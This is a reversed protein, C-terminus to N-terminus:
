KLLESAKELDQRSEFVLSEEELWYDLNAEELKDYQEAKLPLKCQLLYEAM